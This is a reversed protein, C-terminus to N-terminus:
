PAVACRGLVHLYDDAELTEEIGIGAAELWALVREREPYYHYGGDPNLHEGAVVPEGRARAAQFAADPDMGEAEAEAADFLEVTLWILAGPKAADRLRRVVDPWDEPGVNELADVCIVADYREHEDLDQLAERRTPVDPHKRRAEALMGASQDIGTVRRGAALIAPWYKGTGCPADLIEGEPPTASLLRELIAAHSPLVEGWDADYTPSFLRDYRDTSVSRRTALFRARVDAEPPDPM